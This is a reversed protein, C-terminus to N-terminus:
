EGSRKLYYRYALLSPIGLCVTIALLIGKTSLYFSQIHEMDDSDYGLGIFYSLSLNMELESDAPYDIVVIGDFLNIPFLFLPLSILVSFLVGMLITRKILSKSTKM